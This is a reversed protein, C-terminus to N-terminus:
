VDYIPYKECLQRSFKQCQTLISSLSPDEPSLRLIKGIRRAIERMEEEKMGRTTLAATGLRIGSTVMPSRPDQPIMNKNCTIGGQELFYEAQKGTFNTKTLKVLLLHNDTGGSVLDLGQNLLEEALAKCNKLVQKIYEKFEPQLAEHFCQAKAAIVHELPGGQIGPFVFSNLSKIREPNNTLLLGARPGRLTKHTTTSVVEAYPFPSPHMEAAILGSIHAVDAFLTAEVEKAIEGFLSFDITRPYASAGVLIMKPRKSKALDRVQDYDLTETEVNLGYSLCNYFKGSFNAKHGHTLHGGQSLDMGLFTEGPSLLSFYAALNASSGSHPQVNAYQCKFLECAWDIALQEIKDVVHCGGYYRKQPLGEAYKNTLISGQLSMIALSTYNESAIMELGEQQRILEEHVLDELLSCPKNHLFKM